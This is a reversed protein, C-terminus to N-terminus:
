NITKTLMSIQNWPDIWGCIIIGLLDYHFFLVVVFVLNVLRYWLLHNSTLQVPWIGYWVMQCRCALLKCLWGRRLFWRQSKSLFKMHLMGINIKLTQEFQTTRDNILDSINFDKFLKKFTFHFKIYLMRANVKRM